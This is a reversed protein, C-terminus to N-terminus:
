WGEGESVKPCTHPASQMSVRTSRREGGARARPKTWTALMERSSSRPMRKSLSTHSPSTIRRYGMQALLTRQSAIRKASSRISRRIPSSRRARSFAVLLRVLKSVLHLALSRLPDERRRESSAPSACLLLARSTAIILTIVAEPAPPEASGIVAEPEPPEAPGWPQAGWGDIVPLSPKGSGEIASSFTSLSGRAWSSSTRSFEKGRALAAGSAADIANWATPKWAFSSWAMSVGPLTPPLKRRTRTRLDRVDLSPTPRTCPDPPECESADGESGVGDRLDRHVHAPSSCTLITAECESDDAESGEGRLRIGACSVPPEVEVPSSRTVRTLMTLYALASRLM